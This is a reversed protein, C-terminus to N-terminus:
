RFLAWYFLVWFEFVLLIEFFWVKIYLLLLFFFLVCALLCFRYVLFLWLFPL